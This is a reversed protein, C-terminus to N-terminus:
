NNSVIHMFVGLVGVLDADDSLILLLYRAIPVNKLGAM